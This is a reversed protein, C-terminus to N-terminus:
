CSECAATLVVKFPKGSQRVRRRGGETRHSRAAVWSMEGLDSRCRRTRLLFEDVVANKAVATFGLRHPRGSDYTGLELSGAPSVRGSYLDFEPALRKGDLKARV